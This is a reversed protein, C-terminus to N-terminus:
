PYPMTPHLNQVHKVISARYKSIHSCYPCGHRPEKGCEVNIHRRLSRQVKYGRGCHPCKFNKADRPGPRWESLLNWASRWDAFVDCNLAALFLSLYLSVHQSHEPICHTINFSLKSKLITGPLSFNRICCYKIKTFAALRQVPAIVIIRTLPRWM